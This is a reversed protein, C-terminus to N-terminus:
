EAGFPIFSVLNLRCHLAAWRRLRVSCCSKRSSFSIALELGARRRSDMPWRKARWRRGLRRDAVFVVWGVGERGIVAAVIARGRNLFAAPSCPSSCPSGKITVRSLASALVNWWCDCCLRRRTSEAVASRLAARMMEGGETPMVERGSEATEALTGRTRSLSIITGRLWVAQVSRCIRGFSMGIM